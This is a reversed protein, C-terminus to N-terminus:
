GGVVLGFIKFGSGNRVRANESMTRTSNEELFSGLFVSAINTIPSQIVRYIMFCKHVNHTGKCCLIHTSVNYEDQCLQNKVYKEFIKKSMSKRTLNYFHVIRHFFELCFKSGPVTVRMERGTITTSFHLNSNSFM